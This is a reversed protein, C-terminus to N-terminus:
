KMIIKHNHGFPLLTNLQTRQLAHLHGSIWSKLRKQKYVEMVDDVSVQM